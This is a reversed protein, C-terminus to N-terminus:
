QAATLYVKKNNHRQVKIGFSTELAQLMKDTEGVKFFGGIRLQSISPDLILIELETYRSIEAVVQELPDGEFRVLGQHWALRQQIDASAITEVSDIAASTQDFRAHQGAQVLSLPNNAQPESSALPTQEAPAASLEIVGETVTVEVMETQLYVSFATGVARVLGQGATVKFPRSPDPMVEFHAQGRQLQINRGEPSYDISIQSNTNLLVTSGDNLTVLRQEGIDTSYSGPNLMLPLALLAVLVCASAGLLPGYQRPNKFPALLSDLARSLAGRLIQMPSYVPALETLIDLEGWLTAVAHMEQRHAPSQSMWHHFRQLDEASPQGQLKAVWACAQRNISGAQQLNSQYNSM